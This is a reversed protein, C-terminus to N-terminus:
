LGVHRLVREAGPLDHDSHLLASFSDGAVTHGASVAAVFDDIEEPGTLHEFRSSEVFLELPILLDREYVDFPLGILGIPKHTPVFDVLVSSLDSMLGDCQALVDYLQLGSDTFEASTLLRINEALYRADQHNLGDLPHLKIVIQCGHEECARDLAEILDLPVDDLFTRLEEPTSQRNARHVFDVNVQSRYTPMWFILHRDPDLELRRRIEDNHPGLPQPSLLADTRPLVTSLIRDSSAGFSAAIVYRYLDSAAVHTTGHPDFESTTTADLRGIAKIPMGHWLSVVHRRYDTRAFAFVGHTHFAVRARVFALYGRWSHRSRVALQHGHDISLERTLSDFEDQIQSRIELDAVLWTIRLNRRTRVLHRYVAFSSDTHDPISTFVVMRDDPPVVRQLFAHAATMLHRLLRRRNM